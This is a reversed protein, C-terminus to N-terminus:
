MVKGIRLKVFIFGKLYIRFMVRDTNLNENSYYSLGWLGFIEITEVTSYNKINLFDSCPNPYIIIKNEYEQNVNSLVCGNANVEVHYYGTDIPIDPSGELSFIMKIDCCGEVERPLFGQRIIFSSDAPLMQIQSQSENISTFYSLIQDVSYVDWEVPYNEDFERRWNVQITDDTNNKYFLDLTFEVFIDSLEIGENIESISDEEFLIISQANLL